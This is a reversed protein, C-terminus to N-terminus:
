VTRNALSFMPTGDRQKKQESKHGIVIPPVADDAVKSPVFTMSPQQADFFAFLQEAGSIALLRLQDFHEWSVPQQEATGQVEILANSRTLVFNFDAEIVSDESYDLDLIPHGQLIGASVAVISDKLISQQLQKTSLWYKMADELAFYAGTICATRTGGDAQLVDCDILLTREGLKDLAIISRLARGILRSIEVSRGNQKAASSERQTRVATATPLMAYEATLWGTGTGKLFHPVGPQMTVSCLVKTNGLEFLVSGAKAGFVNYSVKLSRLHDNARGGLRRVSNQM